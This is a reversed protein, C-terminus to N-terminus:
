GGVRAAPGHEDEKPIIVASRVYVGRGVPQVSPHRHQKGELLWSEVILSAMAFPTSMSGLRASRNEVKPITIM